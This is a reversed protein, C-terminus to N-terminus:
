LSRKFIIAHLRTDAQKQVMVAYQHLEAQPVGIAEIGYRGV